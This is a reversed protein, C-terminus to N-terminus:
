NQVNNSCAAAAADSKARPQAVSRVRGQTGASNAGSYAHYTDTKQNYVVREGKITDFSKGCVFRTVVAQGIVTVTENKGDYEGKLGRAEVVEFKEPNEQRIYVLKGPEVTALGHQFGNDDETIILQDSHLTMQGRTMVVEGTFISQRQEDDYSLTNSLVITDPDDPVSQEQATALLPLCLLILCALTSALYRPMNNILCYANM